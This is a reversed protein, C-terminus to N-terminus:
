KPDECLTASDLYSPIDCKWHFKQEIKAKLAQAAETEGHTIFLKRPAKKLHALWHLMETSDAHASINEIQAIEARIPIMKGFM